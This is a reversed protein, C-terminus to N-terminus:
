AAAQLLEATPDQSPFFSKAFYIAFAAYVYWDFWEVLNGAKKGFPSGVACNSCVAAIKATPKTMRGIPAQSMPM